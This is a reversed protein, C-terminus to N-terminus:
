RTKELRNWAPCIGRGFKSENIQFKAKRRAADGINQSWGVRKGSVIGQDEHDRGIIDCIEPRAGKMMYNVLVRTEIAFSVEDSLRKVWRNKMANKTKYLGALKAWRWEMKRFATKMDQPVHMLIHLNLASGKPNEVCYLYAREAGDFNLWEGAAKTFETIFEQPRVARSVFRPELDVSIFRNLPMRAHYALAAAEFASRVQSVKIYASTAEASNM